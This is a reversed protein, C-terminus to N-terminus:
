VQTLCTTNSTYNNLSTYVYEMRVGTGEGFVSSECSYWMVSQWVKWSCEFHTRYFCSDSHAALYQSCLTSLLQKNCAKLRIASRGLLTFRRPLLLHTETRSCDFQRPLLLHTEMRSCDFQRPLLLHTETRSCDFQRPLLLHTEMRSCDFQRPLLLYTETRSCDFQRPLLLYTETRSCDFQRCNFVNDVTWLDGEVQVANRCSKSKLTIYSYWILRSDKYCCLMWNM